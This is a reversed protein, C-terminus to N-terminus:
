CFFSESLLAFLISAVRPFKKRLDQLANYIHTEVTRISIGLKNAIEQNSMLDRRSLLFVIKCKEPLAEISAELHQNLEKTELDTDASVYQPIESVLQDHSVEWKLNRIANSIQYKVAKFLYAELNSIESERVNKWLKIFVEQVIDECKQTDNFIKYSYVFLRKWYRNYLDTFAQTDGQKVLLLLEEDSIYPVNPM